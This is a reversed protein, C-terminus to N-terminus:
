NSREHARDQALRRSEDAACADPITAYVLKPAAGSSPALASGEQEAGARSADSSNFLEQEVVVYIRIAKGVADDLEVPAAEARHPRLATLAPLSNHRVYVDMGPVKTLTAAVLVVGHDRLLTVDSEDDRVKGPTLAKRPANAHVLVEPTAAPAVVAGVSPTYKV